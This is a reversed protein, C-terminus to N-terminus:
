AVVARLPEPLGNPDYAAQGSSHAALLRAKYENASGGAHAAYPARGTLLYVLVGATAYLDATVDLKRQNRAAFQEPPMYEWSGAGGTTGLRVASGLDLIKIGQGTDYIQHPAIDSHVYGKDHMSRLGRLISMTIRVADRPSRRRGRRLHGLAEGQVLEMLIGQSGKDLPM